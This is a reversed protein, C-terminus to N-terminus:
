EDGESRDGKPLRLDENGEPVDAVAAPVESVPEVTFRTWQGPAYAVVVREAEDLIALLGVDAVTFSAATWTEEDGTHTVVTLRKLEKQPKPKQPLKTVPRVAAPRRRPM